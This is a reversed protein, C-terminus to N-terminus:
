PVPCFSGFGTYTPFYVSCGNADFGFYTANEPNEPLLLGDETIVKLFDSVGDPSPCQGLSTAVEVDWGRSLAHSIVVDRTLCEPRELDDMIADRASFDKYVVFNWDANRISWAAYAFTCALGIVVAALALLVIKFWRPM